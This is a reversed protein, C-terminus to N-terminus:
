SPRGEAPRRWIMAPRSWSAKRFLIDLHFKTDAVLQLVRKGCGVGTIKISLTCKVRTESSAAGSWMM